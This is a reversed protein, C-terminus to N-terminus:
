DRAKLYHRIVGLKRGLPTAHVWLAFGQRYLSQLAQQHRYYYFSCISFTQNPMCECQLDREDRSNSRVTQVPPNTLCPEPTQVSQHLGKRLSMVGASRINIWIELNSAIASINKKHAYISRARGNKNFIGRILIWEGAVSTPNFIEIIRMTSCDLSISARTHVYTHISSSQSSSSRRLQYRWHFLIPHSLPSHPPACSSRSNLALFLTGFACHAKDNIVNVHVLM